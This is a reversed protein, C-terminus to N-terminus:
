GEYQSDGNPAEAERSRSNALCGSPHLPRSLSATQEQSFASSEGLSFDGKKRTFKGHSPNSGLRNPPQMKLANHIAANLPGHYKVKVKGGPSSEVIMELAERLSEVYRKLSREKIACEEVSGDSFTVTLKGAYRKV